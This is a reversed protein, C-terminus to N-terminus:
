VFCKNAACCSNGRGRCRSCWLRMGMLHGLRWRENYDKEYFRSDVIEKRRVINRPQLPKLLKVGLMEMGM